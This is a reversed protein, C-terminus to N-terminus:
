RYPALAKLASGALYAPELEEIRVDPFAAFTALAFRRMGDRGHLTEPLAPEDVTVDETCLAAAAEADHANWAALFRESGEEIFAHDLIPQVSGKAAKETTTAM